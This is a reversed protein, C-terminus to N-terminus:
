GIQLGWYDFHGSPNAYRNVVKLDDIYINYREHRNAMRGTKHVRNLVGMAQQQPRRCIIEVPTGGPLAAMGPTLGYGPAVGAKVISALSKYTNSPANIYLTVM